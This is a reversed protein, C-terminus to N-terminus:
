RRVEAKKYFDVYFPNWKREEISFEDMDSSLLERREEEEEPFDVAFVRVGRRRELRMIPFLRPNEDGELRIVVCKRRTMVFMKREENRKFLCAMHISFVDSEVTLMSIFKEKVEPDAINAFEPVSELDDLSTFIQKQPELGEEVDGGYETVDTEGEEGEEEPAEENRYRLIGEIVSDPIQAETFLCRLVARSATNVNIKVGQGENKPAAAEGGTAGESGQNGQGAGGQNPNNRANKEPDGPDARYSTYITLVSELGPLVQIPPGEMILDFFITDTVGRQLLLEDLHLPITKRDDEPDDSKLKPRPRNDDDRNQGLLWEEISTVITTADSASIEFSTNERLGVILRELREKSEDAFDQDPSALSLFNFKRNEDEVWVYTTLEGDSYATPQFWPDNSSDSPPEEEGGGGPGGEGGTAGAGAGGLPNAGEGGMGEMGGGSLDDKLMQEVELLNNSLHNEMKTMLADNEGTISAMRATTVLDGVLVFLLVSFIVVLILAIGEEGQRRNPTSGAPKPQPM